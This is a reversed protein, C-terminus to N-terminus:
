PDETRQVEAVEQVTASVTAPPLSGLASKGGHVRKGTEGNLADLREFVRELAEPSSPVYRQSVTVSFHGM